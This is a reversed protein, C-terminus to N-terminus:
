VGGPPPRDGRPPGDGPMPPPGHKAREIMEMMRREIAGERDHDYEEIERAMREGQRGHEAFDEKRLKIRLDFQEGLLARLRNMAEGRQEESAEIVRRLAPMTERQLRLLRLRDPWREPFRERERALNGLRPAFEDLLRQFEAPNERRLRAMRDFMRPDTERLVGLLAEMPRPGGAMPPRGEGFGEGMGEPPPGGADDGGPRRLGDRWNQGRQRIEDRMMSGVFQRVKAAPEGKELMQIAERLAGEERGLTELRKKLMEQMRAAPIDGVVEGPEADGRPHQDSPVAPPAPPPVGDQAAASAAMWLWGGAAILRLVHRM